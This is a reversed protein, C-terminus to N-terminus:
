APSTEVFPVIENEPGDPEILAEPTSETVPELVSILPDESVESATLIVEAAPPTVTLAPAVVPTSGPLLATNTLAFPVAKFVTGRTLMAAVTASETSEIVIEDEAPPIKNPAAGLLPTTRELASTVPVEPSLRTAEGPLVAMRVAELARVVTDEVPAKAVEFTSTDEEAVPAVEPARRRSAVEDVAVSAMLSSAPAPPMTRFEADPLNTVMM